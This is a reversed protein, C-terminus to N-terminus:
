AMRRHRQRALWAEKKRVMLADWRRKQEATPPPLSDLLDAAATGAVAKFRPNGQEDFGFELDELADMMAEWSPPGTAKSISGRALGRDVQEQWYAVLAKAREIAAADFTDRLQEFRGAVVEGINMKGEDHRSRPPTRKVEGEATTLRTTRVHEVTVRPFQRLSPAHEVVRRDIWEYIAVRAADNYEDLRFLTVGCLSRANSWHESSSLSRRVRPASWRPSPHAPVPRGPGDM